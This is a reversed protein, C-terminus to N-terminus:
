VSRKSPMTCIFAPFQFTRKKIERFSETIKTQEDFVDTDMKATMDFIKNEIKKFKRFHESQADKANKALYMAFHNNGVPIAYLHIAHIGLINNNSAQICDGISVQSLDISDIPTDPSIIRNQMAVFLSHALLRFDYEVAYLM